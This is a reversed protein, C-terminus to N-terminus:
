LLLGSGEEGRCEDVDTAGRAEGREDERNAVAGRTHVIGVKCGVLASGAGPTVARVAGPEDGAYGVVHAHALDERGLM